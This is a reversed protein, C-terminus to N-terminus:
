ARLVAHEGTPTLPFPGEKGAVRFVAARQAAGFSGASWGHEAYMDQPSGRQAVDFSDHNGRQDAFVQVACRTADTTV